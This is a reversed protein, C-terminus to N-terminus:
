LFDHPFTAAGIKFIYLYQTGANPKAVMGRETFYQYAESVASPNNPSFVTIDIVRERFNNGGTGIKWASYPETVVEMIAQILEETSHERIGEQNM